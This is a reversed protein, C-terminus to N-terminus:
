ESHQSGGVLSRSPQLHLFGGPPVHVQQLGVHDLQDPNVKALTATTLRQMIKNKKIYVVGINTSLPITEHSVKYGIKEDCLEEGGQWM